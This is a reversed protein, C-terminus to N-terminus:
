VSIIASFMPLKNAIKWKINPFILVAFIFAFYHSVYRCIATDKKLPVEWFIISGHHEILLNVIVIGFIYAQTNVVM